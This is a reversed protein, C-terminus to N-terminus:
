VRHLWWPPDPPNAVRRPGNRDETYTEYDAFHRRRGLYHAYHEFHWRCGEIFAIHDDLGLRTCLAQFEELGALMESCAESSAGHPGDLVGTPLEHVSYTLWDRAHWYAVRDRDTEARM